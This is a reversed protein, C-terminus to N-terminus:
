DGSFELTVLTSWTLSFFVLFEAATLSLFLRLAGAADPNLVAETASLFFVTAPCGVVFVFSAGVVNTLFLTGTLASSADLHGSSFNFGFGFAPRTGRTAKSALFFAVVVSAVVSAVASPFGLFIVEVLDSTERNVAGVAALARLFIEVSAAMVVAVTRVLFGASGFLFFVLGAGGTLLFGAEVMPERTVPALGMRGEESNFGLGGDAVTRRVEGGVDVAM